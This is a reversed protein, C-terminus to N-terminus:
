VTSALRDNLVDQQEKSKEAQIMLQSREEESEELIILLEKVKEKDDCRKLFDQAVLYLADYNSTAM